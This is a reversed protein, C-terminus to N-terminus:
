YFFCNEKPPPLSRAVAAPIALMLSSFGASKGVSEKSFVCPAKFPLDYVTELL